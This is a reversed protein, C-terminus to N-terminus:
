YVEVETLLRNKVDVAEKGPYSFKTCYIRITDTMAKDKVPIIIETKKDKNEYPYEKGNIVVKGSKLNGNPTYLRVEKVLAKKRLQFQVFPNKDRADPKWSYEPRNPETLGDVLYYLSGTKSTM